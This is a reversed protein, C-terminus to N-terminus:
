AQERGVDGRRAAIPEPGTRRARARDTPLGAAGRAMGLESHLPGAVAGPVLAALPRAHLRAGLFAVTWEAEARSQYSSPPSVLGFAYRHSVITDVATPPGLYSMVGYQYGIALVSFWLGAGGSIALMPTRGQQDARALWGSGIPGRHNVRVYGELGAPSMADETHAMEWRGSLAHSGSLGGLPSLSDVGEEIVTGLNTSAMIRTGSLHGAGAGLWVSPALWLRPEESGGETGMEVVAAPRLSFDGLRWGMVRSPVVLVRLDPKAVEGLTPQAVARGAAGLSILVFFLLLIARPRAQM